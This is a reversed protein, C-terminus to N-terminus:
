LPSRLRWSSRQSFSFRTLLLANYAFMIQQLAFSINIVFWHMHDCGSNKEIPTHCNPCPMTNTVVWQLMKKSPPCRTDPHWKNGCLACFQLSCDSGPCSICGDGVDSETVIGVSGCTCKLVAKAALAVKTNRETERDKMRLVDWSSVNARVTPTAFLADCSTDACPMGTIDGSEITETAYRYFCERCFFHLSDGECHVTDEINYTECCVACEMGQVKEYAESAGEKDLLGNCTEDVGGNNCYNIDGDDDNLPKIAAIENEFYSKDFHAQLNERMLDVLEREKTDGAISNTDNNVVRCELDSSLAVIQEWLTMTTIGGIIDANEVVWTEADTRSVAMISTFLNVRESITLDPRPIDLHTAFTMPQISTEGAQMPVVESAPENEIGSAEPAGPLASPVAPSPSNRFEERAIQACGFIIAVCCVILGFSFPILIIFFANFGPNQPDDNGYDQELKAVILCVIMVHFLIQCPIFPSQLSRVETHEYVSQWREFEEHPPTEADSAQGDVGSPTTTPSAVPAIAAMSAEGTDSELGPMDLLTRGAELDAHFPPPDQSDVADEVEEVSVGLVTEIPSHEDAMDDRPKVESDVEIRDGDYSMSKTTAGLSTDALLTSESTDGSKVAGTLLSISAINCEEDKSGHSQSGDGTVATQEGSVNVPTTIATAIPSAITPATAIQAPPQQTSSATAPTSTTPTAATTNTGSRRKQRLARASKWALFLQLAFHAWIPLFVIWFSVELHGELKLALLTVFSSGFMALKVIGQRLSSAAHETQRFEPSTTVVAKNMKDKDASLEQMEELSFPSNILYEALLRSDKTVVIYDDPLNNHSNQAADTEGRVVVSQHGEEEGLREQEEQRVEQQQSQQPTEDGFVQERTVMCTQLHRLSTIAAATCQVRFAIAAYFPLSLIYWNIHGNDIARDWYRAVWFFGLWLSAHQAMASFMALFSRWTCQKRWPLELMCIWFLVVLGYYTWSPILVMVWDTTTLGLVKANVM